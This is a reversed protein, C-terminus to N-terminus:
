TLKLYKLILEANTKVKTGEEVYMINKDVGFLSECGANVFIEKARDNSAIDSNIFASLKNIALYITDEKKLGTTAHLKEYEPTGNNILFLFTRLIIKDEVIDGRFYGVKFNNITFDFLYNGNTDKCYKLNKFSNFMSVHLIGVFVNDIRERLRDLAHVQIYVDYEKNLKPKDTALEVKIYDFHPMPESMLWGVRYAPRNKEDITVNIKETEFCYVDICFRMGVKGDVEARTVHKVAYMKNELDGFMVTLANAMGIYYEWIETFIEGHIMAGFPALKTKVELAEPYDSAKIDQWHTALTIGYTFFDYAVMEDVKGFGLKVTKAKLAQLILQRFEEIIKVPIKQGDAARIYVPHNRLNYINELVHVPLYQSIKSDTVDDLLQKIKSIFENRHHAIGIKQLNTTNIKKKRKAM